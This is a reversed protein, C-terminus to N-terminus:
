KAIISAIAVRAGYLVAVVPLFSIQTLGMAGLGIMLLFAAVAIMLLYALLGTGSIM